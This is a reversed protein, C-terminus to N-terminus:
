CPSSMQENHGSGCLCLASLPASDSGLRFVQTHGQQSPQEKRTWCLSQLPCADRCKPISDV